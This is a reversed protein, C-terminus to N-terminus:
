GLLMDARQDPHDVPEVLGARLILQLHDASLERPQDEPRLREGATLLGLLREARRLVPLAAGGHRGGQLTTTLWCTYTALTPELGVSWGVLTGRHQGLSGPCKKPAASETARCAVPRNKSVLSSTAAIAPLSLRFVLGALPHHCARYEIRPSTWESGCEFAGIQWGV